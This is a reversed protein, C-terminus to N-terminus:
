FTPSRSMVRLDCTRIRGGSHRQYHGSLGGNPPSEHKRLRGCRGSVRHPPASRSAGRSGTSASGYSSHRSPRASSRRRHPAYRKPSTPSSPSASPSTTTRPRSRPNPSKRSRRPPQQKDAKLETIRATVIEPEIGDELAQVQIKIKRDAEAIQHRLRTALLKGTQKQGQQHSKLQKTLKELRLPGFIRQAFFQEVLPLLADERIYIWKQNGHVGSAATDGYNAGYNCAYYHHGKRANGHMSIPQHGTACHLIGAFLYNRGKPSHNPTGQRRPRSRFREQSAEYLEDSMLPLHSEQAVVWEEQARLTPGTGNRRASAFDLRNWVM